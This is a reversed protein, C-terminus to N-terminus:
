GTALTWHKRKWNNPARQRQWVHVPDEWSQGQRPGLRKLPLDTTPDSCGAGPHISPLGPLPFLVLLAKLWSFMPVGSAGWHGPLFRPSSHAITAGLEWWRGVRAPWFWEKREARGEKRRSRRPCAQSWWWGPRRGTGWWRWSCARPVRGRKWLLDKTVQHTM